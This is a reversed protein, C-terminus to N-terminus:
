DPPWRLSVLAHAVLPEDRAHDLVGEVVAAAVRAAVQEVEGRRDDPLAALRGRARWLEWDLVAEAHLRFSEANM